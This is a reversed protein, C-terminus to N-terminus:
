QTAVFANCYRLASDGQRLVPQTILNPQCSHNIFRAVSGAVRPRAPLCLLTPTYCAPM